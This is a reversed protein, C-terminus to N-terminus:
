ATGFNTLVLTAVGAGAVIRLGASAVVSEADVGDGLQQVVRPIYGRGRWCM